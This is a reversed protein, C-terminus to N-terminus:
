KQIGKRNPSKLWSGIEGIFGWVPDDDPKQYTPEEPNDGMADFIEKLWVHKSRSVNLSALWQEIEGVPVVFFGYQSLQLFLNEAAEKEVNGLASLGKKKPDGSKSLTNWVDSRQTGLPQHQQAPVRYATLHNTWAAGGQNLVDIDAIAATPVGLARLPEVIRHLQDKGNCNIFLPNDIGRSDNEDLLRYNIEQYFARDSDAETVVVSDHFLGALVNSSRLLPDKMLKKVVENPLLRATAQENSYTLRVINVQVGSQIAGFLFQPSHTAAFVQKKIM